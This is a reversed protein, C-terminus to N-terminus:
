SPLGGPAVPIGESPKGVILVSISRASGQMSDEVKLGADDILLSRVVQPRSYGGGPVKIASRVTIEVVLREGDAPVGHIPCSDSM